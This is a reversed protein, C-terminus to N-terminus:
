LTGSGFIEPYTNVPQYLNSEGVRRTVLYIGRGRITPVRGGM